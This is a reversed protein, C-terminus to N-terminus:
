KVRWIVEQPLLNDIDAHIHTEEDGIRTFGAQILGRMILFRSHSDHCRLDVANGRTHADNGSGGLAISEDSTRLGSTIIFPIGAYDRANDLCEVLYAQLGVIESDKFNRPKRM